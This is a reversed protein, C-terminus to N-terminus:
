GEGLFVLGTVVSDLHARDTVGRFRSGREGRSLSWEWGWGWGGGGIFAHLSAHGRREELGVAGSLCDAVGM